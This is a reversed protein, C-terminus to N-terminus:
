REEEGPELIRGFLQFGIISGIAPGVWYIWMPSFEGAFVATGFHRAPNM